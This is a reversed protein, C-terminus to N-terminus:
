FNSIEFDTAPNECLFDGGSGFSDNVLIAIWWLCTSASHSMEIEYSIAGGDYLLLPAFYPPPLPQSGRTPELGILIHANM